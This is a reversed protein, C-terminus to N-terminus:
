WQAGPHAHHLYQMECLLHGLHETHYGNIGGSYMHVDGPLDVEGNRFVEQINSLWKKRIDAMEPVINEAQLAQYANDMEFFNETFPWLEVIADNLRRLSEDTGLALREFWDSAHRYHYRAEKVAKACIAAIREDKSSMLATYLEKQYASFFLLKVMSVAFDGNPQEVLLHNFYERESRGFALDDANKGMTDLTAAYDLFSESQGLLDLSINVMALDEELIPGNSCWEAMRQGAILNDDSCRLLFQYLNEKNNM